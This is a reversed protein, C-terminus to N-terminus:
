VKIGSAQFHASGTASFYFRPMAGLDAVVEIAKPLSPFQVALPWLAHSFAHNKVGSFIVTFCAPLSNNEANKM